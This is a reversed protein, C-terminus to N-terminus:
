RRYCSRAWRRRSCPLLTTWRLCSAPSHTSSRIMSQYFMGGQATMNQFARTIEASTARGSSVMERAKGVATDGTFGWMRALEKLIPVGANTLQNVDQMSAKGSAQIQSFALVISKLKESNGQAVDGLMRLRETVNTETAAGFGIMTQAADALDQFQFPTRAGLVQLQNVLGRAATESGGLMTTFQALSNETNSAAEVVNKFGRWLFSLGTRILDAGLIGTIVSGFMSSQRTTQGVEKQLRDFDGSLKKVADSEPSLGSRILRQIERQLGMMEARAGALPGQTAQISIANLKNKEIFKDIQETTFTKQFKEIKARTAESVQALSQFDKEAQKFDSNIKIGIDAM